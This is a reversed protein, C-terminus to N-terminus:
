ADGGANVPWTSSPWEPELEPTRCRIDQGSGPWLFSFGFSPVSAWWPAWPGVSAISLTEGHQYRWFTLLLEAAEADWTTAMQTLYGDIRATVAFQCPSGDEDTEGDIAHCLYEPKLEVYTPAGSTDGYPWTRFDPLWQGRENAFCTPEYEWPTGDSDLHAAYDAELRSRMQIGKYLTPRAKIKAAM